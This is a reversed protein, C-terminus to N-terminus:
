DPFAAGLTDILVNKVFIQLRLLVQLLPTEKKEDPLLIWYGTGIPHYVFEEREIKEKVITTLGKTVDTRTWMEDPKAAFCILSRHASYNRFHHLITFSKEDDELNKEMDRPKYNGAADVQKKPQIKYMSKTVADKCVHDESGFLFKLHDKYFKEPSKNQNSCRSIKIPTYPFGCKSAKKHDSQLAGGNAFHCHLLFSTYDLVSYLDFMFARFHLWDESKENQLNKQKMNFYEYEKAAHTYLSDICEVQDNEWVTLNKTNRIVGSAKFAIFFNSNDKYSSM